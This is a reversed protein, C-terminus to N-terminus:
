SLFDARISYKRATTTQTYRGGHAWWAGGSAITRDSGSGDYALTVSGSSGHTVMIALWYDGAVVYLGCPTHIWRAVGVGPANTLAVGYNGAIGAQNVALLDGVVGSNDAFVATQWAYVADATEGVYAGVSSITGGSAATVKKCYFTSTPLNETSGGVTNYGLYAHTVGGLTSYSVWSSGDDLFLSGTDTEYYLYGANGAAPRAAHTGRGKTTLLPTGM